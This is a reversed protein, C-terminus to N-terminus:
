GALAHYLRRHLELHIDPSFHRAIYPQAAQRYTEYGDRLRIVAAELGESTPRFVVGAGAREVSEALSVYSSVLLPKGRALAELGSRPAAIFSRHELAPLAAAHVEDYVAGMDGIVGDRVEVNAAGAERILRHLKERARGRWAFLFRVEPLRAAVRIMLQVGRTLFDDAAFPSSAFLITFPGSAARYPALPIGPRILRLSERAVGLQLMLDRDRESQVVVARFRRLRPANREIAGMSSSGKAVTLVAGRRLLMSALWRESASAFLHNIGPGAAHGDLLPLLALAQPLPVQKPSGRWRFTRDRVNLGVVSGALGDGLGDVLTDIEKSVAEWYPEYNFLWYRVPFPPHSM